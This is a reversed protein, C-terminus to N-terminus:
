LAKAKKLIPTPTFEPIIDTQYPEKSNIIKSKESLQGDLTFYESMLSDIQSEFFERKKREIEYLRKYKLCDFDFYEIIKKFNM